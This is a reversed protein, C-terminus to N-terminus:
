TEILLTIINIKIRRKALVFSITGILLTLILFLIAMFEPVLAVELKIPNAAGPPEFTWNSIKIVYSIILTIIFGIFLSITSLLIMERSFIWSIQSETFGLARLTGIEKSREIISITLSNIIALTITTGTIFIFFVSLSKLFNNTGVYFPNLRNDDYSLMELQPFKNEFLPKVKTKWSETVETNEFYILWRSISHTDFLKQGLTLSGQLGMDELFVFGYSFYGVINADIASVGGDFTKALLQVSPDYSLSTKDLTSQCDIIKAAPLSLKNQYLTKKNMLLALNKTIMLPFDQESFLTFDKGEFKRNTITHWKLFEQNKFLWNRLNPNLGKFFFPVSRCGNSILGINIFLPAQFIIDQNFSKLFEQIQYQESENISFQKSKSFGKELWGKKIISFHGSHNTYISSIALSREIRFIYGKFLCLGSFGAAIALGTVFTRRPNRWLNKFALQWLAM